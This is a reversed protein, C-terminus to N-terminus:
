KHKGKRSPHYVYLLGQMLHPEQIKVIMVLIILMLAKLAVLLIHLKTEM